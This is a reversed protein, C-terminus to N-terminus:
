LLIQLWLPHLDFAQLPGRYWKMRETTYNPTNEDAVSIILYVASEATSIFRLSKDLCFMLDLVTMIFWFLM